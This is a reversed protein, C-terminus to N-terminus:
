TYRGFGWVRSVSGYIRTYSGAALPVRSDRPMLDIKLEKQLLKM